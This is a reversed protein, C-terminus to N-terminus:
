SSVYLLVWASFWVIEDFEFIFNIKRQQSDIICIIDSVVYETYLITRMFAIFDSEQNRKPLM